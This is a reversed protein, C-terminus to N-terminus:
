CSKKLELFFLPLGLCKVGHPNERYLLDQSDSVMGSIVSLIVRTLVIEPDLTLAHSVAGVGGDHSNNFDATTSYGPVPDQNKSTFVSRQHSVSCRCVDFLLM